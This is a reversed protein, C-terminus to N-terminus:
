AMKADHQISAWPRLPVTEIGVMTWTNDQHRAIIGVRVGGNGEWMGFINPAGYRASEQILRMSIDRAPDYGYVDTIHPQAVLAKWAAKAKDNAEKNTDHTGVHAARLEGNSRYRFLYCGSMFGTLVPVGRIGCFTTLGPVYYLQTYPMSLLPPATPDTRMILGKDRVIQVKHWLSRLNPVNKSTIPNVIKKGVFDHITPV